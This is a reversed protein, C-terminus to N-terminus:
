AKELIFYASTPGLKALANTRHYKTNWSFVGSLVADLWTVTPNNYAVMDIMGALKPIAPFVCLAKHRTTFGHAEIMRQLIGVPIGRERKTLGARPKTWDGMSVIPERLLMVGDASLCRSCEAIVKSVNPIHHMVGLCTILDFSGNEFAMSGDVEPKQCECPVGGIERTESFAASPELITISNVQHIIPMFEDGYAGGFGLAHRFRRGRIHKFGHHINLQHYAYQYSQRAGAGLSAYGEEEDRFWKEIADRTFDDGYLREGAFYVSLDESM